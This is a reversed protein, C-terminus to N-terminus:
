CVLFQVYIIMGTCRRGNGRYGQRCICRFSGKTNRCVARPHCTDTSRACENIDPSHPYYQHIFLVVDLQIECVASRVAANLVMEQFAEDVFACLVVPPIVAGHKQM